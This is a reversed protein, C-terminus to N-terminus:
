PALLPNSPAPHSPILNGAANCICHRGRHPPIYARPRLPPPNRNERHYPRHTHLSCRPPQLHHRLLPPTAPLIGPLPTTRLLANPLHLLTATQRIRLLLFLHWLRPIGISYVNLRHAPPTIPPLAKALSFGYGAFVGRVGIEQLKHAAYRWISRHRGELM